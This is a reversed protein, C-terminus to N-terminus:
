IYINNYAKKVKICNNIKSYFYSSILIQLHIETVENKNYAHFRSGRPELSEEAYFSFVWVNEDSDKKKM